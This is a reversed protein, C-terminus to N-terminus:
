HAIMVPNEQELAKLGPWLASVFTRSLSRIILSLKNTQKNTELSLEILSQEEAIEKPALLHASGSCCLGSRRTQSAKSLQGSLVLSCLNQSEVLPHSITLLILLFSVTSTDFLSAELKLNIRRRRKLQQAAHGFPRLRPVPLGFDSPFHFQTPHNLGQCSDHKM